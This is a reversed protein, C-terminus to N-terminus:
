LLIILHLLNGFGLYIVLPTPNHLNCLLILYHYSLLLMVLMVLLIMFYYYRYM